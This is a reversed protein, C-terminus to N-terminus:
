SYLWEMWTLDEAIWEIEDWDSKKVTLRQANEYAEKEDRASVVEYYDPTNYGRFKVTWVKM